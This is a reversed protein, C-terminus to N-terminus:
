IAKKLAELLSSFENPNDATMAKVFDAIMEKEADMYAERIAPGDMDFGKLFAELFEEKRAKGQKVTKSLGHAIAMLDVLVEDKYGSVEVSRGRPDNKTAIM